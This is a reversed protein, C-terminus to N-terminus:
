PCLFRKVARSEYEPQTHFALVSMSCLWITLNLFRKAAEEHTYHCLLYKWTIEAYNSQVEFINIPNTLDNEASSYYCGTNEYFAHLSMCLKVLVIESNICKMAWTYIDMTRKGYKKIMSNLFADLDHLYSHQMIFAGGM